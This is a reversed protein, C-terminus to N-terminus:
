CLPTKKIPFIEADLSKAWSLIQALKDGYFIFVLTKRLINITRVCSARCPTTGNALLLKMAPLRTCVARPMVCHSGQLQACM